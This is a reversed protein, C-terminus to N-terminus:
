QKKMRVVLDSMEQKMQAQNFHKWGGHGPFVWTFPKQLLREVSSIQMHWDYWCVRKSAKLKCSQQDYFIHDGTFLYQNIYLIVIHGETHGPTPILTIEDDLIVPEDTILNKEVKLTWDKVEAQHIIRECGFHRAWLEHDAVDDRHTLIMTKIGGMTEIDKVLTPHFRPSDILVNGMKRQILYSSAGFSYRSTYGCYYINDSICFPLSVKIEKFAAPAEKVGISNTPCSILARKAQVWEELSIPQSKVFSKEDSTQAFNEPALHYCTGCDICTTDVFLSGSVNSPNIKKYCAM